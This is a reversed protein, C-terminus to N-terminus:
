DCLWVHKAGPFRALQATFGSEGVFRALNPGVLTITGRESNILAPADGDIAGTPLWFSGDFDVQWTLGCHGLEFPLPGPGAVRPSQPQILGSWANRRREIRPSQPPGALSVEVPEGGELWEVTAKGDRAALTRPCAAENRCGYLQVIVAFPGGRDLPMTARVQEAVFACEPVDVGICGIVPFGVPIGGSAPAATPPNPSCGAVALLCAVALTGALSRRRGTM